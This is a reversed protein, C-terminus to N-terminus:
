AAVDRRQFALTGIAVLLLSLGLMLGLYGLHVGNALPESGNLWAFPSYDRVWELGEVQPIVGNMAYGLLGIGAGVGLALARRGTAAGVCFTVSGFLLAFAALHLHIGALMAPSVSTLQAPSSIAVMAVWFVSVIVLVSVAFAAFRQLAVGGRSVPHALVLDLWGAEEDGAIIRAGTSVAFVLLLVAVVLGYVTANLYGAATSINTYNIAEMLAAPYNELLEQMQPDNITPWFAAYGCGAVVIALTWGLLSRRSDWLWKTFVNRTMM